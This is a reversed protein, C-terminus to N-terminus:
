IGIAGYLRASFVTVLEIMDSVLEQEFTMEEPSQNILVVKRYRGM